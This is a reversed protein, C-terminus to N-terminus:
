VPARGLYIDYMSTGQCLPHIENIIGTQEENLNLYGTNEKVSDFVFITTDKNYTYEDPINTQIAAYIQETSQLPLKDYDRQKEAMRATIVDYLVGEMCKSLILLSCLMREYHLGDLKCFNAVENVREHIKHRFTRIAGIRTTERIYAARVYRAADMVGKLIYLNYFPAYIQNEVKMWEKVFVIYSKHIDSYDQKELPLIIMSQVLDVCYHEYEDFLTSGPNYEELMETIYDAAGQEVDEDWGSSWDINLPNFLNRVVRRLKRSRKSNRKEKIEGSVTVLFLKPDAVWDFRDSMFGVDTHALSAWLPGDEMDSIYSFGFDIIVPYHGHTPVAFQNEDDLVYLFVVDKNCKRMMINFSHLDYHAFQKKKQAIVIALLVQKITSYLVDESIRDVARIYNYFKCSKDIFECLLTEKQIPHKAKTNFPNGEKKSRPDVKCLISGVSKCFHPCYPSLTNLGKMVTSEHHILYNIYQSIKFVYKRKGSKKNKLTLLGVLGQKGPKDFVTDFSLWNQWDSDKNEEYYTLLESYGSVESLPTIKSM